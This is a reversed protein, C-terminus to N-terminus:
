YLMQSKDATSSSETGRTNSEGLDSGPRVEGKTKRDKPKFLQSTANAQNVAVWNRSNEKSHRLLLRIIPMQKAVSSFKHSRTKLGNQLHILVGDALGPCEVDAGLELLLEVSSLSGEDCARQLLNISTVAGPYRPFISNVDFGYETILYRLMGLHDGRIVEFAIYGFEALPLLPGDRNVLFRLVDVLNNKVAYRQFEITDIQCGYDLLLRVVKVHSCIPIKQTTIGKDFLRKAMEENGARVCGELLIQGDQDDSGLNVLIECLELVKAEDPRQLSVPKNKLALEVPTMMVKEGRLGLRCTSKLRPDAGYELLCQAINTQGTLAAVHLATGFDFDRDDSRGVRANYDVGWHLLKQVYSLKGQYCTVHLFKVLSPYDARCSLGTDLLYMVISEWKENKSEWITPISTGRGSAQRANLTIQLLNEKELYEPNPNIHDDIELSPFPDFLTSYDAGFRILLKFTEPLGQSCTYYLPSKNEDDFSNVSAGHAILTDVRAKLAEPERQWMSMAGGYPSLAAQLIDSEDKFLDNSTDKELLINVLDQNKTKLAIRTANVHTKRFDPSSQGITFSENVIEREYDFLKRRGNDSDQNALDLLASGAFAMVAETQHSNLQRQSEM